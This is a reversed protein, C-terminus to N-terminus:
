RAANRHPCIRPGSLTRIIEMLEYFAWIQRVATERPDNTKVAQMVRDPSPMESLYPPNFIKGNTAPATPASAQASPAGGQLPCMLGIAAAQARPMSIEDGLPGNPAGKILSCFETGNRKECHKVVIILNNACHYPVNLQLPPPQQAQANVFDSGNLGLMVAAIVNMKM